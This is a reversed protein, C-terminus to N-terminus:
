IALITLTTPFHHFIKEKACVKCRNTTSSYAESKTILKRKINFAIENSKLTWIYQSITTANQKNSSQFSSIHGNYRPNFTNITLGTRTEEKSNGERTVTAQYIICSTSCNWDLQCTREQVCNCKRPTTGQQKM